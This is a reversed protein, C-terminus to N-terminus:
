DYHRVPYREQELAAAALAAVKLINARFIREDFPNTVAKGLYVNIYAIWDNTTNKADFEPGWLKDQRDRESDIDDFIDARNM